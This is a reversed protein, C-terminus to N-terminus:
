VCFITIRSKREVNLKRRDQEKAMQLSFFGLYYWISQENMMVWTENNIYILSFFLCFFKRENEYIFLIKKEKKSFDFFFENLKIWSCCKWVEFKLDNEQKAERTDWSTDCINNSKTFVFSLCFYELKTIYISSSGRRASVITRSRMKSQYWNSTKTVNPGLACKSVASM